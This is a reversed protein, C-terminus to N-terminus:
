DDTEDKPLLPGVMVEGTPPNKWVSDLLAQYQIPDWYKKAYYREGSITSAAVGRVGGINKIGLKEAVKNSMMGHFEVSSVALPGTLPIIKAGQHFGRRRGERVMMKELRPRAVEDGYEAYVAQGRRIAEDRTPEDIQHWYNERLILFNPYQREAALDMWAYGLARDQVVGTGNWYMEAIIAQAPKDAHKAARLFYGRAQQYKGEGYAHLGERRWRIDPHGSLFGETMLEVPIGPESIFNGFREAKTPEQWRLERPEEPQAQSVTWPGIALVVGMAAAIRWGNKKEVTGSRESGPDAGAHMWHYPRAYLITAASGSDLTCRARISPQIDPKDQLM